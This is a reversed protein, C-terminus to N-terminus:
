IIVDWLVLAEISYADFIGEVGKGGHFRVEGFHTFTAFGIAQRIPHKTAEDVMIEVSGVIM